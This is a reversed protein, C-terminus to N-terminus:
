PRQRTDFPLGASEDTHNQGAHTRYIAAAIPNFVASRFLWGGSGYGPDFARAELAGRGIPRTANASHPQANPRHGALFSAAGHPIVEAAIPRRVRRRGCPDCVLVEQNDGQFLLSGPRYAKPWDPWAAPPEANEAAFADMHQARLATVQALPRKGVWTLMRRGKAATIKAQAPQPQAPAARATAAAPRPKVPSALKSKKRQKQAMSGWMGALM